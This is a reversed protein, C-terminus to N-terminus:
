PPPASPPDVATTSTRTPTSLRALFARAVAVTAAPDEEHPVHGLADFLVVESGPIDARFREADAPVILRDQGGWLVLTPARVARIKEARAGSPADAFRLGLARRNGARLTLEYYRDVLEATVRSPDGYVNRVSSEVVSRPLVREFLRTLVPLRALRFGIPVSTSQLPYGSADVLILGAVRDPAAVALEWALNGGFSSGAVVFREVGLADLAALVFRVYSAFDYSLGVPMPGTLGFGPLDLSVVRHDPVLERAWGEWTHLSASTGHLLVVTRLAPADRLGEDRVHVQAGLVDVFRSPQPAWRTTLSEVPRDPAWTAAIGVAAILLLLAFFAGAIRLLVRM